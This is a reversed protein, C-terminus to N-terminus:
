KRIFRPHTEISMLIGFGILLSVVSTGGYSVLPLPIGVIPLIGSIMGANVIVYISFTLGISGALLRTYTDQANAAIVLCRAIIFIYITMLAIVGLLGFEEAIVALIFDTSKEPLFELHSQTGLLWGKGYLGGSGIAIKSQIINWGHNLPDAEPNLLTLVRQKQYDHMFSWFVPISAIVSSAMLLIIKWPLGALFLVFLGSCAVLAGTGLDPQRIILGAPILIIALVILTQQFTPPLSKNSLKWSVMMPVSLKMLESPQFRFLGLDLWRQAGKGVSGKFLVLVLLSISITFLLPTWNRLQQPQIRAVILMVVFAFTLRASQRVITNMQEGSASYLIFLGAILTIILASILSPDLHPQLSIRKGVAMLQDFPSNSKM